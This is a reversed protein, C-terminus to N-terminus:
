VDGRDSRELQMSRRQPAPQPAERYEIHQALHVGRSELLRTTLRSFAVEAGIALSLGASVADARRSRPEREAEESSIELGSGSGIVILDFSQM